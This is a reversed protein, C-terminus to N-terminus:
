SPPFINERYHRDGFWWVVLILQWVLSEFVGFAEMERNRSQTELSRRKTGYAESEVLAAERIVVSVKVVSM